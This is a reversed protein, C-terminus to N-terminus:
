FNTKVFKLIPRMDVVVEDVGDNTKKELVENWAKDNAEDVVFDELRKWNDLGTVFCGVDAHYPLHLSSSPCVVDQNSNTQDEENAPCGKIDQVDGQVDVGNKLNVKVM